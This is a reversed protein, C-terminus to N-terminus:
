IKFLSDNLDDPIKRGMLIHNTAAIMSLNQLRGDKSAHLEYDGVKFLPDFIIMPVLNISHKTSMEESQTKKNFIVMEDANGHDATILAIGKVKQILTCIKKLALDVTEVAQIVASFDGTHGVMDANAFNILGYEKKGEKIFKIAQDAIEMAKMQPKNAFSNIKDSDILFYTERNQDLPKHYGGNFFFTVHAFKQSETLRFQQLGYELIRKGFPNDVKSREMLTNEPLNTDEDYVMMGVYFIDPRNQIPFASFTKETFARSIQIARDGRFNMLIVADNDVIQTIEGQTNKVNFAPLDQDVIDPNEKRFYQIAEMASEFVYDSEGLVHCNWGKETKSWNQDRDMTITERGGGSIISYDYTPFEKKIQHFTKEIKEIYEQASQIGVDRGDLLAHVYCNKIGNRAAEYIIAIFHDIHSHVNGDSLLGILHLSADKAQFLAQRLTPLEFFSKNNLKNQILLPGQDVIKGAGLTLHGVESGGLDNIQPLGVHHGHTALKTFVFNKILYDMFPTKAQYVADSHDQKGIGYGDLVINLLPNRAKFRHLLEQYASM